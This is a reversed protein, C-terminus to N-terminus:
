AGRGKRQRKLKGIADLLEVAAVTANDGFRFLFSAPRADAVGALFLVVARELDLLERV